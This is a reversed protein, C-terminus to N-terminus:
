AVGALVADVAAEYTGTDGGAALLQADPVESLPSGEGEAGAASLYMPLGFDDADGLVRTVWGGTRSYISRIADDTASVERVTATRSDTLPMKGDQSTINFGNATAQRGPVYGNWGGLNIYWQLNGAADTGFLLGGGNPGSHVLDYLGLGAFETRFGLEGFNNNIGQIGADHGFPKLYVRIQDNAPMTGGQDGITDQGDVLSLPQQESLTYMTGAQSPLVQSFKYYGASDTWAALNVAVGQIDTGTLTLPVGGIGWEGPDKVGDDDADFYVYGSIDSAVFDVVTIYVTATDTLGSGDIRDNVTYVIEANGTYGATPSYLLLNGNQITVTGHANTTDVNTITLTEGTDPVTTDNVLVNFSNNTTNWLVTTRDTTGGDDKAEPPDNVSTVTITLSDTDTLEVPPNEQGFNGKDNTTITLVPSVGTDPTNFDQPARFTLGNLATNIAPIAGLITIAGSGNGSVSTLNNTTALTLKGSTVSLQVRVDADGADIDSVSIVRGAAQSFVLDADEAVTQNGPVTNVPPDNVGSIIVQIVDTDSLANGAGTAGNDNSTVTLPDTGEQDQGPTFIMGNLAQNVATLPGTLTVAASGNGQVNTLGATTSLDLKGGLVGALTLTVTVDSTGADVDAVSILRNGSFTITQNEAASVATPLTNVPADNVPTVTLSVSGADTLSGGGTHGLDDVGVQLTDAGAFDEAPTYTLGALSANVAAVLGTITLTGTNAGTITVSGNPAHLTGHSVSATVTLGGGADADIDAVTINSGAILVPTEEATTVQAFPIDLEPPDNVPTVQVNVTGTHPGDGAPTATIEYTFSDPGFYDDAPTYSLSTGDTTVTGHTTAVPQGPTVAIGNLQTIALTGSPSPIDNSLVNIPNNDSDEAVTASDNAAFPQRPPVVNITVTDQDTLVGPSGTNGLDSTLVTLTVQGVFGPAAQAPATYTVQSLANNVQSVTGAIRVSTANPATITAGGGPLVALSGATVSLDTQVNVNGDGDVISIPNGNAASFVYPANNPATQAGPVTNVPPDNIANVTVTFSRSSTGNDGGTALNGDLGGDTVTVTVIATGNQNGAPTFKLMGTANPSTYDITLGPILTLNSSTATVQLPQVEGGGASIGSLNVTQEGPDENVTVNGIANLTPPDNAETVNVTVTATATNPTPTKSDRVQYTFTVQGSFNNAPTFNVNNGSVFVTASGAPSVAGVANLVLPSVGNAGLVDGNLVDLPTLGSDEAVTYEDNDPVIPAQITITLPPFSPNNADQYFGINAAPVTTNNGEGGSPLSFVLTANNEALNGSFAVQGGAVARIEVMFFPYERSPSYGSSNLDFRNLFAGIEGLNLSGAPQGAELPEEVATPGNLYPDFFEFSSRFLNAEQEPTTPNIPIYNDVISPQPAPLIPLFETTNGDKDDDNVDKYSGELNQGQVTMAAVNQEGLAGKFRVFFRGDFDTGQLTSVRVNGAGITSLAELAAQIAAADQDRVGYYKIASTTAGNFTVTFTGGVYIPPTNPNLDHDDDYGGFVGGPHSADMRLEQTEGFRIAAKDANTMLVDMYAAFAGTRTGTTRVDQVSGVLRFTEGVNVTNTTLLNGSTDTARLRYRVIDSGATEGEGSNIVNVVRLVDLPTLAGDGSVDTYHRVSEADPLPAASNVLERSGNSNLDNVIYLVDSATVKLSNDVDEPWFGNHFPNAALMTREELREPQLWRRQTRVHRSKANQRERRGHSSRRTQFM